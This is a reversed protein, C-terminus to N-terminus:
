PSQLGDRKPLFDKVFFAMKPNADGKQTYFTSDHTAVRGRQCIDPNQLASSVFVNLQFNCQIDTCKAASDM